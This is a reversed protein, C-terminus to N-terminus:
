LEFSLKLDQLFSLTKLAKGLKKLSSKLDGSCRCFELNLSKLSIFGRIYRSAECIGAETM